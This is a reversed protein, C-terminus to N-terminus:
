TMLTPFIQSADSLWKDINSLIAAVAGLIVGLTQAWVLAKRGWRRTKKQM